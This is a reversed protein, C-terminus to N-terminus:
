QVSQLGSAALLWYVGLCVSCCVGPLRLGRAGHSPSALFRAVALGVQAFLIAFGLL